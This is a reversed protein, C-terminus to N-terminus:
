FPSEVVPKERDLREEIDVAQKDRYRDLNWRDAEFIACGAAFTLGLFTAALWVARRNSHNTTVSM